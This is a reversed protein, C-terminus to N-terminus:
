IKRPPPGLWSSVYSMFGVAGASIRPSNLSIGVFTGPYRIHSCRGNCADIISLNAITRVTDCVFEECKGLEWKICVPYSIGSAVATWFMCGDVLEIVARM